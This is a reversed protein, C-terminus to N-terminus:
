KKNKASLPALGLSIRRRRRKSKKVSNMDLKPINSPRPPTKFQKSKDEVLYVDTNSIDLSTPPKISLISVNNASSSFIQLKEILLEALGPIDEVMDVTHVIATNQKKEREEALM